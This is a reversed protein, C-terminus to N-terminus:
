MIGEAVVCFGIEKKKLKKVKQYPVSLRFVIHVIKDKAGACM